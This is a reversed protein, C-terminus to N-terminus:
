NMLGRATLAAGLAGTMDPATAIKLSTKFKKELLADM